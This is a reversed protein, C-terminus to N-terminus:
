GCYLYGYVGVAKGNSDFVVDQMCKGVTISRVIDDDQKMLYGPIDSTCLLDGSEIAGNQNCVKFGLLIEKFTNFDRNDGASAIIAYSGSTEGTLSNNYTNEKTMGVFIGIVNKQRAISSKQPILNKMVVCDGVDLNNDLPMDYFHFGTFTQLGVVTGFGTGDEGAVLASTSIRLKGSPDVFINQDTGDFEEIIIRPLYRSTSTLYTNTRLILSASTGGSTSVGLRVTALTNSVKSLSIDDNDGIDLGAADISGVSIAGASFGGAFDRAVIAYATNSDTATTASNSVKGATSITALMSNTVKSAGITTVGSSDITVDGTVATATPVNSSNGMLLRGATISALKSHAIAASSNIDANVVVGSGISTVGSSDITVDGTVGTATPVSSANGLLINAPAISALKTHAIAANANIDDNVIVGSSISTVGSSNITVDGTVATATPSNSANGMLISGATIGSLKSHAIAAGAAIDANVIVGSGISTVGTSSILVDGSLAVPAIKNSATAILVQAANAGNYEFQSATISTASLSDGTVSGNVYVAKWKTSNSGLEYTNNEAPVINSSATMGGTGLFIQSASVHTSATLVTFSGSEAVSTGIKTGDITGGNIDATTVTGLNSITSGAFNYAITTNFTGGKIKDATIQGAGLTLTGASVNLTKGAGVTIDSTAITANDITGGNIDATTVSGLNTITRGVFSYTGAGFTGGGIKDAAIQAAGLTLTGASVDLTKSAGVTINSTAITTNDITGGNIDASSATLQTISASSGSLIRFQANSGSLDEFTADGYVNINQTIKADGTIHIGGVLDVQSSSMILSSFYKETSNTTHFFIKTQDPKLFMCDTVNRSPLLSTLLISSKQTVTTLSYPTELEFDYLNDNSDLILISKGDNSVAIDSVVASLTLSATDYSTATISSADWPQSMTYRILTNNIGSGSCTFLYRGDESISIGQQETLTGSSGTLLVKASWVSSADLQWPNSLSTEYLRQVTTGATALIYAKTGDPKFTFGYAVSSAVPKSLIRSDLSVTTIDWPTALNCIVIENDTTNHLYIKSGDPKIYFTNVNEISLPSLQIQNSSAASGLSSLDKGSIVSNSAGTVNLVFTKLNNSNTINTSTITPITATNTYLVSSTLTSGTVTTFQATTGSVIGASISGTFQHVDGASSGFKNGTNSRLTGTVSSASVYTTANLSVVSAPGANLSGTVSLNNTIGLSGTLQGFGTANNFIFNTAGSVIGGSKVVVSNVAGDVASGTGASGTGIIVDNVFAWGFRSM